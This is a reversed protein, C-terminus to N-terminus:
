RRWQKLKRYLTAEGIGLVEAAKRRHGGHRELVAEVHAREVEALSADLSVERDAGGRTAAGDLGLDRPSLVHEDAMVLAREVANQLERVNGPWRHRLLAQCAANGFRAQPLDMRVRLDDLAARALPLIDDPRDRLPPIELEVVGLRYYLDERFDGQEMAQRLDRHTAAVVRVDVPRDRTEGLRRIEREQLVRLLKVQMSHPVEGIEDLFLTGGRAAEFLGIRDRDAGTFAGKAHGFLESELLSEPVAGCNVAVFPCGQRSSEAHVFRALREKGTGSEGTVLVNSDVRAVKRALELVRRMAESRAVLGHALAREEERPTATAAPPPAEVRLRETLRALAEPDYMSLDVEPPWDEVPRGEMRCVADGQARCRTEVCRIRRGFARSLYGSAFGVLTWCVPGESRGLCALHQEAEYSDPWIAEAFPGGPARDQVPEFTVLGKLRHIRGGARRWEEPDDWPLASELRDAVRWGHAFGFRTLVNRAITPGFDRHIQERLLGLAVADLLLAREGAFRIPGGGPEIELLDRLDLDEARM